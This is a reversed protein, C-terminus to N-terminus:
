AARKVERAICAEGGRDLLVQLDAFSLMAFGDAGWTRGWSNKLRFFKGPVSVGDILLCHGGAFGSSKNVDIFLRSIGASDLRRVPDFMSEFWDVGIVMPGLTLLTDRVEEMQFAWRYESIYGLAQMAMAGARVTTGFNWDPGDNEQWPDRKVAEAYVEMPDVFEAKHTIPSDEAFHAWGHGVCTGSAGQDYWAGNAWWYKRTVEIARPFLAQIPYNRDRKDVSRKRGLGHRKVSERGSM